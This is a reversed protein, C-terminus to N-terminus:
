DKLGKQKFGERRIWSTKKYSYRKVASLHIYKKLTYVFTM